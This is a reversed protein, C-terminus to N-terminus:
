ILNYYNVTHEERIKNKTDDFIIPRCSWYLKDELFIDKFFYQIAKYKQINYSSKQESTMLLLRNNQKNFYIKMDQFSNKLAQVYLDKITKRNKKVLFVIIMEQDKPLLALFYNKAKEGWIGNILQNYIKAKKLKFLSMFQQRDIEAIYHIYANIIRHNSKKTLFELRKEQDERDCLPQNNEDSMFLYQNSYRRLNLFYKKEEGKVKLLQRYSESDCVSFDLDSIYCEWITEM